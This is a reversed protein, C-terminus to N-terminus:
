RYLVPQWRPYNNTECKGSPADEACTQGSKASPAYPVSKGQDKWGQTYKANGCWANYNPGNKEWQPALGNPWSTYHRQCDPYDAWGMVREPPPSVFGARWRGSSGDTIFYYQGANAGVLVAVPNSTPGDVGYRTVPYNQLGASVNHPTLTPGAFLIGGILPLWSYYWGVIATPAKCFKPDHDMGADSRPDCAKRTKPSIKHSAHYTWFADGPGYDFGQVGFATYFMSAKDMMDQSIFARQLTNTQWGTGINAYEPKFGAQKFQENQFFAGFFDIIYTVTTVGALKFRTAITGAQGAARSPDNDEEFATSQNDYTIGCSDKIYRRFDSAAQRANDNGPWILGFKRPKSRLAPDAANVARGNGWLGRNPGTGKLDACIWQAGLKVMKTISQFENWFYPAFKHLNQDTTDIGGFLMPRKDAPIKAQMAAALTVANQASGPVDYVVASFPHTQDRMQLAASTQKDQCSLSGADVIDYTLKRGYFPQGPKNFKKMVEVAAPFDQALDDLHANWYTVLNRIAENIEANITDTDTPAKRYFRTETSTNAGANVVAQTINPPCNTKDIGFNLKITDKTVGLWTNPNKYSTSQLKVLLGVKKSQAEDASPNLAAYGKAAPKASVTKPKAPEADPKAPGGELANNKNETGGTQAVQQKPKSCAAAVLLVMSLLAFVRLHTKM